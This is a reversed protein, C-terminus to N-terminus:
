LGFTPPEFGGGAVLRKFQNCVEIRSSRYVDPLRNSFCRLPHKKKMREGCRKFRECATSRRGYCESGAEARVRSAHVGSAHDACELAASAGAASQHRNWESTAPDLVYTQSHALRRANNPISPRHQKHMHVGLCHLVCHAMEVKRALQNLRNTMIKVRSLSAIKLVAVNQQAGRLVKHKACHCAM